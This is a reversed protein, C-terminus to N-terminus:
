GRVADERLCLCGCAGGDGVCLGSTGEETTVMACAGMCGLSCGGREKESGDM